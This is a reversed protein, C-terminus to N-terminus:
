GNKETIAGEGKKRYYKHKTKVGTELNVTLKIDSMKKRETLLLNNLLFYNNDIM